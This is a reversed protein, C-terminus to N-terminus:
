ATCEDFTTRNITAIFGGERDPLWVLSVGECEMGRTPVFILDRESWIRSWGDKNMPETM